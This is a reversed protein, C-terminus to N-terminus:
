WAVAPKPISALVAFRGAENKKDRAFWTEPDDCLVATRQGGFM